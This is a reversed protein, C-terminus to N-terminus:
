TSVVRSLAGDANVVTLLAAQTAPDDVIEPGVAVQLVLSQLYRTADDPDRVLGLDILIKATRDIEDVSQWSM